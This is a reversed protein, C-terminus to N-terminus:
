HEALPVLSTRYIESVLSEDAKVPALSLLGPLSPTAFTLRTLREVDAPVFGVDTLKEKIGLSFLWAEVEIAAREAEEPVGQLNPVIPALVDALVAARAPYIARIVSPLLIALGLGHILEPKVASLPHELAHTIHLMGNDFSVGALMAAYTLDYRAARDRLSALATPLSSAVESIAERAASISVGNAVTTTAAEIAHNVADVSTYLVHKAPLSLMLEPDDISWTPYLCDFAIAPKFNQEVVTAVAFRNVESGTGHTLNVVIIPLAEVPAFAGTYLEKATKGPNKLLAAASKAVDIPSGGGMGIVAQAGFKSGQAVVEDISDTTPNPTVGAYHSFEIGAASLANITPEWAGSAKYAGKTTVILVRSIGREKLQGAIDQMKNIAGCGLFAITRVRTETVQDINVYKSIM